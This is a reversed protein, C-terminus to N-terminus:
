IKGIKIYDQVTQNDIKSLENILESRFTGTGKNNAKTTNAAIEGSIGLVATATVAAVLPSAIANYAALICGLMCGSGTIQSMLKHGNEIAYVEKGDSIIDIPGSVAITTDLKEAINKVILANSEVTDDNIVDGDAVDVGKAQTCEDLIGILNALTKIESLNGRIITPNSEILELSTQNRINSVGIGVPDLVYAKELKDATQSAIKMAEIQKQNLTGINVLLSNVITVMEEAELPENAMIPSAGIALVANACDNVTVTNTICHVLPSEKRLKIVCDCICNIIENM